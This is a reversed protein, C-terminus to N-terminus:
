NNATCLCHFALLLLFTLSILIYLKGFSKLLFFSTQFKKKFEQLLQFVSSSSISESLIEFHLQKSSILDKFASADDLFNYEPTRDLIIAIDNL